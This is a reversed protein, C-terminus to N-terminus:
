DNYSEHIVCVVDRLRWTFPSVHASIIHLLLVFKMLGFDFAQTLPRSNLGGPM